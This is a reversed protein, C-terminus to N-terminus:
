TKISNRTLISCIFRPPFDIVTVKIENRDILVIRVKFSKHISIIYPWMVVSKWLVFALVGAIISEDFYAGCRFFRTCHARYDLSYVLMRILYHVIFADPVPNFDGSKYIVTLSWPSNRDFPRYFTIFIGMTLCTLRQYISIHM